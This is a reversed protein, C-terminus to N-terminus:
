RGVAYKGSLVVVHEPQVSLTLSQGERLAPSQSQLALVCVPWDGPGRLHIRRVEGLFVLREVTAPFRNSGAPVNAGLMLSEPRISITVPSGSAPEGAVPQGVLRGYPTRVIVEGRTGPGEVQGQVLNTQGLLRAVFADAPRNYLESPTGAQVVKGLDMVALRDALALADRTDSTFVLTTVGAEAHLRRIEDRFDDRVRTELRGLPDDLVLLEPKVALARALAVRQRQVGSLEDPRSRALSDLHVANLAESVRERRDARPVKRLKLAYGINEAVTLRPWLADDQFVLGVGREHPPLRHVIRADFFIEGADVPDLGAVLRALTTKGAGSPGLVVTIAGAPLELSAGDVVAVGDLTKVLGDLTVRTM